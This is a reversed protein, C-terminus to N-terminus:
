IVISMSKKTNTPKLHNKEPSITIECFIWVVLLQLSLNSRWPKSIDSQSIFLSLQTSILGYRYASLFVGFKFHLCHCSLLSIFCMRSYISQQVLVILSLFLLLISSEDNLKHLQIHYESCCIEWKWQFWISPPFYFVNPCRMQCHILRILFEDFQKIMAFVWLSDFLEIFQM